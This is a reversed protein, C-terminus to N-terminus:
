CCVVTMMAVRWCAASPDFGHWAGSVCCATSRRTRVLVFSETSASSNMAWPQGLKRGTGRPWAIPATEHATPVTGRRGTCQLTRREKVERRGHVPPFAGRGAQFANCSTSIRVEAARTQELLRRFPSGPAASSRPM